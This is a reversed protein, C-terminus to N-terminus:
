QLEHAKYQVTHQIVIHMQLQASHGPKHGANCVQVRCRLLFMEDFGISLHWVQEHDHM